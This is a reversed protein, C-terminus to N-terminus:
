RPATKIYGKRGLCYLIPTKGWRSNDRKKLVFGGTKLGRKVPSFPPKKGIKM